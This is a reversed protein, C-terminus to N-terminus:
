RGRSGSPRPGAGRRRAGAPTAHRAALVHQERAPQLQVVPRDPPSRPHESRVYTGAPQVTDAVAGSRHLREREADSLWRTTGPVYARPYDARYASSSRTSVPRALKELLAKSGASLSRVLADDEGSVADAPAAADAGPLAYTAWRREGFKLLRGARVLSVLRKRLTRQGIRGGLARGIDRATVPGTLAAIAEIVDDESAVELPPRPRGDIPHREDM